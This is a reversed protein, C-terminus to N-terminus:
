TSKGGERFWSGPFPNTGWGKAKARAILMDRRELCRSTLDVMSQTIQRGELHNKSFHAAAAVALRAGHELAFWSVRLAQEHLEPGNQISAQDEGVRLGHAKQLLPNAHKALCLQAYCRRENELFDQGGADPERELVRKVLVTAHRFPQTPDRHEIWEAALAEDAGIYGITFSVEFISAVLTAAQLPYGRLALLAACRLDNAIRIMLSLCARRALPVSLFDDVHVASSCELVLQTAERALHFHDELEPKLAAFAQQEREDLTPSM